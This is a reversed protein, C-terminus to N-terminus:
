NKRAPAPAADKSEVKKTEGGAAFPVAKVVMGPRVRQVGEVILREGAALGSLVLWKDGIARDLVLPRHEVKDRSDVVLTFPNGKSDRSVAQQPVLLAKPNVGEDVVARVFMGPLLVGAPNPFVIRLIVSGTTPDVTVDRFQMTGERTYRTGDELILRVRSRNKEGPKLRGEEMRRRLRLVETSSQTVDVYMPDLQQVTALALPQQATVLAGETVNSKGIRGSIPSRVTTYGLNIRATEVMAQWYRIDAQAQKLAAAADDYEQRSVAKEEVLEKLREARPQIAALNAESRSLAARANDLAAKFPAPDIQFLVQGAKVDAGETFLRKQIIGNVQPRVDAVRYASTRGALETTIVIQEPQMTVVAVDPAGPPKGDGKQQGCCTLILCGAFIGAAVIFKAMNGIRM